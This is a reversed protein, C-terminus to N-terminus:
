HVAKSDVAYDKMVIGSQKKGVVCAEIWTFKGPAYQRIHGRRLHIRPSAHTGGLSQGEASASPLHLTWYSFLPQKGKAARKANLSKPAPHEVTQTNTCNIAMVFRALVNAANRAYDLAELNKQDNGHLMVVPSCLLDGNKEAIESVCVLWWIGYAKNFTALQTQNFGVEVALLGLLGDQNKAEFWTVPYPLRFLENIIKLQPIGEVDGMDFCIANQAAKKIWQEQLKFKTHIPEAIGSPYVDHRRIAEILDHLNTM